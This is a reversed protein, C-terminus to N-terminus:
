SQGRCLHLRRRRDATRNRWLRTVCLPHRRDPHGPHRRAARPEVGDAVPDRGFWLQRRPDCAARRPNGRARQHYGVAPDALRADVRGLHDHAWQRDVPRRNWVGTRQHDAGSFARLRGAGVYRLHDVARWRPQQYQNRHGPRVLESRHQIRGPLYRRGCGAAGGAPIRHNDGVVLWSHGHLIGAQLPDSSQPSTLFQWNIWSKFQLKAGPMAAVEAEIETRNFISEFLSWSAVVQPKLVEVELLEILDEGARATLPQASELARLRGASINATLLERLVAPPQQALETGFVEAVFFDLTGSDVGPIFRFIPDAPWSPDIQDWTEAETFVKRVQDLTLGAAFSNQLSVVIPIGDNAVQFGIPTRGIEQCASIDLNGIARSANVLDGLGEVCFQRFGADTGIEDVAVEGILRGGNQMAEAVARTLPAVTSSGTTDIAGAAPFLTDATSTTLGTAAGWDALATQLAEETLPFYGIPEGVANASGLYDYVFAAVQPKLRLIDQTTYVFLPRALPYQESAVTAASLEVNEVPLARLTALNQQYYSNGFFGIAAPRASVGQALVNDDESALTKPMTTMVNKYYNTTLAGPDVRYQIAVYGFAEDVIDAVLVVLVFVGLMTSLLFLWGWFAGVQKRRRLFREFVAGEAYDGGSQQTKETVTLVGEPLPARDV